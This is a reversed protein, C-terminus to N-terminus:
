FALKESCYLRCKIYSLCVPIVGFGCKSHGFYFRCSINLPSNIPQKTDYGSPWGIEASVEALQHFQASTLACSLHQILVDAM